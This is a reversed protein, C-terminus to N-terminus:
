FYVEWRNGEFRVSLWLFIVGLAAAFGVLGYTVAETPKGHTAMFDPSRVYLLALVALLFLAGAMVAAAFSKRESAKHMRVTRLFDDDPRKGVHLCEPCSILEESFQSPLVLEEYCESCIFTITGRVKVPAAAAPEPAKEKKKSLKAKAARAPKETEERVKKKGFLKKKEPVPPPVEVAKTEEAPPEPPPEPAAPEAPAEAVSPEAPVEAAPPEEVVLDAESLTEAETSAETEAASSASLEPAEELVESLLDGAVIEEPPIEEEKEGTPEPPSGAAREAPAPEKAPAQEEVEELPVIEEFSLLEEGAETGPEEASAKGPSSGAKAAGGKPSAQAPEGEDDGLIDAFDIEEIEPAEEPAGESPKKSENPDKAAGENRPEQGAPRGASNRRENM